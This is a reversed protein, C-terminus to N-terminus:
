KGKRSTCLRGPGNRITITGSIISGAKGWSGEPLEVVPAQKVSAVLERGTSPIVADQRNLVTIVKELWRPGEFWWHGFLETDFPSTVVRDEVPIHTNERLVNTIISVYHEANEELRQEINEPHYVEKEGLDATARTVRWYRHGGPFRKKHFDLYNGDGPYGYEGSWVQLSTEEDRTLVCVPEKEGTTGAVWHLRYPSTELIVEREM